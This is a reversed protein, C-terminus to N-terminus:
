PAIIKFKIAWVYPKKDAAGAGYISDWLSFFSRRPDLCYPNPDNPKCGYDRFYGIKPNYEIGEAVADAESIDELREAQIDTVELTIRSAERPMFISPRWKWGQHTKGWMQGNEDARYIYGANDDTPHMGAFDTHQWTERVWLRDGVEWKPRLRQITGGSMSSTYKLGLRGNDFVDQGTFDAPFKVARRTQTKRGELIARIM